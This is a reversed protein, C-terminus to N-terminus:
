QNKRARIFIDANTNQAATTRRLRIVIWAYDDTAIEVANGNASITVDATIESWRTNPEQLAPPIDVEQAHGLVEYNVGNTGGINNLHVMLSDLNRNDILILLNNTDPTTQFADQDILLNLIEDHAYQERLNQAGHEDVLTVITM